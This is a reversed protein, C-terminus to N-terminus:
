RWLHVLSIWRSFLTHQHTCSDVESLQDVKQKRTVHQTKTKSDLVAGTEQHTLINPQTSHQLVEIVIDWLDLAPLGDMRLEADQSIVESETSSHSVSTQKRACGVPQPLLEVELFVCSVVQPQSQTRLIELQLRLRSVFGTQKGCSLISSLWEHSSFLFDAKSITQWMGSDMKHSIKCAQERVVLHRDDLEHWTCANCSLKRAFRQCSELKNWNRRNSNIIMWVLVAFSQLTAGSEQKGIWLITWCMKSCTRGHRQVVGGNKAHPKEAVRTITWNSWCFYTVWVEKHATWHNNWETQMRM